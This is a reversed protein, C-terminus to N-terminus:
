LFTHPKFKDDNDFVFPNIATFKHINLAAFVKRFTKIQLSNLIQVKLLIPLLADKWSSSSMSFDLVMMVKQQRKEISKLFMYLSDFHSAFLFSPNYSPMFAERTFQPM